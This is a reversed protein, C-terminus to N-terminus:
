IVTSRISYGVFSDSNNNNKFEPNIESNWKKKKKRQGEGGNRNLKFDLGM